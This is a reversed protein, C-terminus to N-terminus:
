APDAALDNGMGVPDKEAKTPPEEVIFSFYNYMTEITVEKGPILKELHKKLIEAAEENDIKIEM